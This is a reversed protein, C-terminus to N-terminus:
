LSSPPKLTFRVYLPILQQVFAPWDHPFHVPERGVHDRGQAHTYVESAEHEARRESQQSVIKKEAAPDIGFNV